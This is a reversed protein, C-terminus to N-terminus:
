CAGEAEGGRRQRCDVRYLRRKAMAGAAERADDLATQADEETDYKGILDDGEYACYINKM